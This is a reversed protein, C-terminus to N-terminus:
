RLRLRRRAVLGAAGLGLLALSAPEPVARAGINPGSFYSISGGNFPSVIDFVILNNAGTPDNTKLPAGAADLVALSFNDPPSGANTTTTITLDLTTGTGHTFGQIFQNFFGAAPNVAPDTTVIASSSLDGGAGGSLTTPPSILADNGTLMVNTLTVTNVVGPAGGSTLIADISYSGAALGSVDITVAQSFDARAPAILALLAAAALGATRGPRVSTM